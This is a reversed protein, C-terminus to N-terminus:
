LVPPLLLFSATHHPRVVTFHRHDITAIESTNLREALAVVSADAGGLPLDSYQTVLQSMRRLDAPTVDLLQGYAGEALDQLFTAEVNPGKLLAIMYCAEAIIPVPVRLQSRGISAFWERCRQHHDDAESVLAVLVGTDVLIM